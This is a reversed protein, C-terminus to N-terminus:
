HKSFCIEKWRDWINLKHKHCYKEQKRFEKELKCEKMQHGKENCIFCKGEKMKQKKQLEGRQSKYKATKEKTKKSSNVLTNIACVEKEKENPKTIQLIENHKSSHNEQDSSSKTEHYEQVRQM